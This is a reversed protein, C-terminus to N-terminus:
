RRAGGQNGKGTGKWDSEKLSRGGSLSRVVPRWDVDTRVMLRMCVANGPANGSARGKQSSKGNWQREPSGRLSATTYYSNMKVQVWKNFLCM